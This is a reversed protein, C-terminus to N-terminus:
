FVEQMQSSVDSARPEGEVVRTLDEKGVSQQINFM